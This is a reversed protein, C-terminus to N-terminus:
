LIHRFNEMMKRKDFILEIENESLERYDGKKLKDDLRLGGVTVRKLYLVKKGRAAMMRKM